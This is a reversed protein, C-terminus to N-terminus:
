KYIEFRIVDNSKVDAIKSNEKLHADFFYLHCKCLNVHMLDADLKGTTGSMFKPIAHKMDSFGVHKMDRFVAKYAPASHMCCVRAALVEHEECAIMLFPKDMVQDHYQGFLMGDINAGCKFQPDNMCLYYAVAGGFSHGALGIGKDFDVMDDMTEKVHDLATYIDEAWEPLRNILFRGFREQYKDIMKVLEEDTGKAKTLKNLAIINPIMPKNATKLLQKDAFTPAADDYETCVGEFPHGVTMVIYGHSALEICLFSNGERFSQYGHNFIILPFKEGAIRPADQYCESVNNGAATENDYNIPLKFADKIGKCMDRSMYEAKEIGIVSDKTVPYYVRASIRRKAGPHLVEDREEKATFTMTGVAYQGTPKPNKGMM